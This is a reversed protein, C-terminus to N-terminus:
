KNTTPMSASSTPHILVQRFGNTTLMNANEYWIYAKGVKEDITWCGGRDDNPKRETETVITTARVDGQDFTNLTNSVKCGGWTEFDGQFKARRIKRFTQKECIM